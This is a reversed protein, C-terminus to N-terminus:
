PFERWRRGAKKRTAHVIQPINETNSELYKELRSSFDRKGVSTLALRSFVVADILVDTPQIEASVSAVTKAGYLDIQKWFVESLLYENQVISYSGEIKKTERNVYYETFANYFKNIFETQKGDHDILM